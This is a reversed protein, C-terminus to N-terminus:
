LTLGHFEAAVGAQQVASTPQQARGFHNWHWRVAQRFAQGPEAAATLL